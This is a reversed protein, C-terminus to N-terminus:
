AVFFDTRIAASKSALRDNLSKPQVVLHYKAAEKKEGDLNMAAPTTIVCEKVQKVVVDKCSILDKRLIKYIYYPAFLIDMASPVSRSRTTLFCAMKHGIVKVKSFKYRSINRLISAVYAASKITKVDLM